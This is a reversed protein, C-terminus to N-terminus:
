SFSGKQANKAPAHHGPAPLKASSVVCYTQISQYQPSMDGMAKVAPINRNM